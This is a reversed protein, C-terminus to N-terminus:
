HRVGSRLWDLTAAAGEALATWPKWGLQIEACAPDLVSRGVEGVRPPAVAPPPVADFSAAMTEYLTNISTEVGSGINILLGSGKDAARAFADVVDDVYVFDRTQKGDGIITCREGALLHGAFVAVVDSGPAQRPGYVHALALSSFEMGYLDQYAALYETVAKKAVGYPSTPRQTQTERVPLDSDPVRGYIAGGSSAFVIKSVGSAWAAELVRLSGTINVDADLVPDTISVSADVQGALHYIVDPRRREIVSALGPSRVDLRHFTLQRSAQSRAEALNGVRGTSLNDVVDVAHGEALLRDVLTSGIFGAGGTVL